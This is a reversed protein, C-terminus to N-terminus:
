SKQRRNIIDRIKSIIDPTTGCCGGIGSVGAAILEEAGAAFVDATTLYTLGGDTIVPQGANPQAIVPLGDALSLIDKIVPLMEAPTLTCNAGVASLGEERAVRMMDPISAGMFSRGGEGFTMTGLVSLGSAAKAARAARAFEEADAFTEILVFDAGAQAGAQAQAAFVQEVEEYSVGGLPGFLAGSPGLDLCAFVERGGPGGGSAAEKALGVAKKLTEIALEREGRMMMQTVGFTNGTVVDSGALINDLHIKLVTEPASLNMTESGTGKPQGAALLATGMASDFLVVGCDEFLKM